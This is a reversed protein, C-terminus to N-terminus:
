SQGLAKGVSRSIKGIETGLILPNSPNVQALAELDARSPSAWTRACHAAPPVPRCSSSASRHRHSLRPHTRAAGWARAARTSEGGAEARVPTKSGSRGACLVREPSPSPSSAWFSARTSQPGGRVWGPSTSPLLPAMSPRSGAPATRPQLRPQPAEQARKWPLLWNGSCPGSHAAPIPGEALVTRGGQPGVTTGLRAGAPPHEWCGWPQEAALEARCVQRAAAQM